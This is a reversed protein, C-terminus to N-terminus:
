LYCAFLRIKHLSIHVAVTTFVLPFEQPFHITHTQKTCTCHKSHNEQVHCKSQIKLSTSLTHCWLYSFCPKEPSHPIWYPWTCFWFYPNNSSAQCRVMFQLFHGVESQLWALLLEPLDLRGGLITLLCWTGLWLSVLVGDKMGTESPCTWFIFHLSTSQFQLGM